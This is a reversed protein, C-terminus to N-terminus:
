RAGGLPEWGPVLPVGTGLQGGQLEVRVDCTALTSARHAILFTTRGVALRQMAALIRAETAVDM